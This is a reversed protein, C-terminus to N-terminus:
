SASETKEYFCLMEWLYTDLQWALDHLVPDHLVSCAVNRLGSAMGHYRRAAKFSQSEIANSFHSLVDSMLRRMALHQPNNLDFTANEM